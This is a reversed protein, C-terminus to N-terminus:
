QLEFVIEMSANAKIQVTREAAGLDPHVARVTYEGAPLRTVYKVDTSQIHMVGDVYISGWPRVLVALTGTQRTLEGHVTKAEGVRADIEIEFTEHSEMVLKIQRSGPTVGRLFLPTTGMRRGDLLVDAGPPHSSVVLEATAADPSRIQASRASPNSAGATASSPGSPGAESARANLGDVAGGTGSPPDILATETSGGSRLRALLFSLEQRKGAEIVLVTDVGAYDPLRVSVMYVGPRLPHVLPTLGANKDDIYVLAGAPNTSISLIADGDSAPPFVDARNMREKAGAVLREVEGPLDSEETVDEAPNSYLFALAAVVAAILLAGFGYPALRSRLSPVDSGRLGSIDIRVERFPETFTGKETPPM